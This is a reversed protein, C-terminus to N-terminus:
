GAKCNGYFHIQKGPYDLLVKLGLTKLLKNGFNAVRRETPGRDMLLTTQGAASFPGFGIPQDVKFLPLDIKGRAGTVTQVGGARFTSQLAQPVLKKSLSTYVSSGTDLSAKGKFDGIRFDTVILITDGEEFILPVVHSTACGIVLPKAAAASTLRIFQKAPYDIMVVRSKLYNYGLILDFARAPDSGKFVPGPDAIAELPELTEGAVTVGDIVATYGYTASDGVGSLQVRKAEDFKIGVERALDLEIGSPDLGTDVLIKVPRGRLTGALRLQDSNSDIPFAQFGKGSGSMVPAMSDSAAAACGTLLGVASTGILVCNWHRSVM